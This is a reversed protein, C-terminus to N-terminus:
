LVFNCWFFNLFLYVCFFRRLIISLYIKQILFFDVCFNWFLIRYISFLFQFFIVWVSWCDKHDMRIPSGYLGYPNRIPWVFQQDRHTLKGWFRWKKRRGVFAFLLFWEFCWCYEVFYCCGVVVFWISVINLPLLSALPLCSFKSPLLDVWCSAAVPSSAAVLM